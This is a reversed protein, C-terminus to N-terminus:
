KGDARKRSNALRDRPHYDEEEGRSTRTGGIERDALGERDLNPRKGNSEEISDACADAANGAGPKEPRQDICAGTPTYKATVQKACRQHNPRRRRASKCLPRVAAVPTPLAAVKPPRNITGRVADLSTLSEVCYRAVCSSAVGVM